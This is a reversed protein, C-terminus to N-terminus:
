FLNELFISSFYFACNLSSFSLTAHGTVQQLQRQASDDPAHVPSPPSRPTQPTQPTQPTNSPAQPTTSPGCNVTAHLTAARSAAVSLLDM